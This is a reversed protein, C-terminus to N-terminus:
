GKSSMYDCFASLGSGVRPSASRVTPIAMRMLSIVQSSTLKESAKLNHENLAVAFAAAAGGYNKQDVALRVADVMHNASRVGAKTLASSLAAYAAEEGAVQAVRRFTRSNCNLGACGIAVVMATLLLSRIHRMTDM